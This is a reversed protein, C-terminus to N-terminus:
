KSVEFKYGSGRLTKIYAGCTGLKNRLRNVHTDVTSSSGLYDYGWVTELIQDRSLLINDNEMLYALLDFEKRSLYIRDGSVTVERADPDIMLNGFVSRGVGSKTSRRLLAQVRAVLVTPTFPKIIYDDAGYELGHVQDYDEGKATLMLIPCDYDERLRKCCEFGDIGPMMVDLITLDFTSVSFLKMAAEGNEAEEVKFGRNELVVRLLKRISEEDDVVLIRNNKQKGKM